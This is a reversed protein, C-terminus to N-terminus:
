TSIGITSEDHMWGNNKTWTTKNAWDNKKCHTIGDCKMLKV